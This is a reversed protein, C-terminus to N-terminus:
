NIRVNKKVYVSVGTIGKRASDHGTVTKGTL